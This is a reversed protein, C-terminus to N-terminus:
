YGSVTVGNNLISPIFSEKEDIGFVYMLLALAVMLSGLVAGYNMAFRRTDM